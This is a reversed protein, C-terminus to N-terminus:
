TRGKVFEKLEDTPIGYEILFKELNEATVRRYKSCPVRFGKLRGSDIWTCVTRSSVKCISAVQGTSLVVTM